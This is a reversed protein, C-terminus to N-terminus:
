SAKLKPAHYGKTIGYAPHGRWHGNIWKRWEGQIFEVNDWHNNAKRWHGRCYHLPMKFTRDSETEKVHVPENINWSIKHWAEVAVGHARQAAKRQQRTGSADRVVFRPQNILSFAGSIEILSLSNRYKEEHTDYPLELGGNIKYGGMLYPYAFEAVPRVDIAGDESERCLYGVRANDYESNFVDWTGGCSNIPDQMQDIVIFCLKSPLRTMGDFRVDDYHLESYQRWYDDLMENFESGLFYMDAHKLDDLAHRVDTLYQFHQAASFRKPFLDDRHHNGLVFRQQEMVNSVFEVLYDDSM